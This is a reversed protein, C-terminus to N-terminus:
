RYIADDVTVRFFEGEEEFRDGGFYWGIMLRASASILSDRLVLLRFATM